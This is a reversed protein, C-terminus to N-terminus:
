VTSGQLLDLASLLETKSIAHFEIKKHSKPSFTPEIINQLVFTVLKTKFPSKLTQCVFSISDFLFLYNM